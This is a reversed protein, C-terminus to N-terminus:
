RDLAYLRADGDRALPRAHGSVIAAALAEIADSRLPSGVLAHKSRTFEPSTLLHTFGAERIRRTMEAPTVGEATEGPALFLTLAPRDFITAAVFPRWLGYMRPEDLSLVRADPPLLENARRFLLLPSAPSSRREYDATSESGVLWPFPDRSQVMTQLTSLTSALLAAGALTVALGRMAGSGVRALVRLLAGASCAALLGAVPLGYRLLPATVWWTAALLAAVGLLERAGERRRWLLPTALFLLALPNWTSPEFWLGTLSGAAGSAGGDSGGLGVSRTHVSIWEIWAQDEPRGFLGGLFPYFPNGHRSVGLVLWPLVPLVCAGGAVLAGRWGRRSGLDLRGLVLAALALVAAYPLGHIKFAGSLGAVLFAAAVLGHDAGRRARLMLDTSLVLCACLALDVGEVYTSLAAQQLSLFIAVALPGSARHVHRRAAQAIFVLALLGIGWHFPAVRLDPSLSLILTDLLEIGHPLHSFFNAPMEVLRGELVYTAPIVLHYQLADFWSPPPLACLLSASLIPLTVALAPALALRRLRSPVSPGGLGARRAQAALLVWGAILLGASTARGILGLLGICFMALSLFGLGLLTAIAVREGGRIRDELAPIRALVLGGFGAAAAHVALAVGLSPLIETASPLLAATAAVFLSATVTVLGALALATFRTLRPM